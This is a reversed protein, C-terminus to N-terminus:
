NDKYRDMRDERALNSETELQFDCDPCDIIVTYEKESLQNYWLNTTADCDRCRPGEEPNEKTPYGTETM